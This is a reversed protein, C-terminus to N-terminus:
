IGQNIADDNRLMSVAQFAVLITCLSCLLIIVIYNVPSLNSYLKGISWVSLFLFVDIIITSIFAEMVTLKKETSEM